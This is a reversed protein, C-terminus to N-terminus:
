HDRDHRQTGQGAHCMRIELFQSIEGDHDDDHRGHEHISALRALQQNRPRRLFPIEGAETYPPRELWGEHLYIMLSSAADPAFRLRLWTETQTFALAGAETTEVLLGRLRAEDQAPQMLDLWIRSPATPYLQGETYCEIAWEARKGLYAWHVLWRFLPRIDDPKSPKEYRSIVDMIRDCTKRVHAVSSPSACLEALFRYSYDSTIPRAKLSVDFLHGFPIERHIVLYFHCLPPKKATRIHEWRLIAQEHRHDIVGWELMWEYARKATM